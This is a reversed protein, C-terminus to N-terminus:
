VLVLISATFWISKNIVFLMRLDIQSGSYAEFCTLMKGGTPYDLRYEKMDTLYNWYDPGMAFTYEGTAINAFGDSADLDDIDDQPVLTMNVRELLTGRAITQPYPCSMMRHYFQIRDSDSKVCLHVNDWDIPGYLATKGSNSGKNIYAAHTRLTELNSSTFEKVNNSKFTPVLFRHKRKLEFILLPHISAGILSNTLVGTQIQAQIHAPPSDMNVFYVCIRLTPLNSHKIAQVIETISTIQLYMVFHAPRFRNMILNVRTRYIGANRTGKASPMSRNVMIFILFKSSEFLDSPCRSEDILRARPSFCVAIVFLDDSIELSQILNEKPNCVLIFIALLQWNKFIM